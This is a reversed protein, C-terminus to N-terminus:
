EVLRGCLKEWPIKGGPTLTEVGCRLYGFGRIRGLGNGRPWTETPALKGIVGRFGFELFILLIEGKSEKGQSGLCCVGGRGGGGKRGGLFSFSVQKYVETGWWSFGEMWGPYVFGFFVVLVAFALASDLAASLTM